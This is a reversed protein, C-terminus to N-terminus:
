KTRQKQMCGEAERCVRIGLRTGMELLCVKIYNTNKRQQNLLCFDSDRGFFFFLFFSNRQLSAGESLLYFKHPPQLFTTVQMVATFLNQLSPKAAHQWATCFLPASRGKGGLERPGASCDEATSQSVTACPLQIQVVGVADYTCERLVENAKKKRKDTKQKLKRM